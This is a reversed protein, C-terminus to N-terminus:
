PLLLDSYPEAMQLLIKRPGTYPRRGHAVLMNDILLIDGKHWSFEILNREVTQNIEEIDAGEIASGDGYYANNPWLVEDPENSKTMLAARTMEDMRSIHFGHAFNFWVAENTIPHRRVAPRKEWTRLDHEDIWQFERGAARSIKEVVTKDTTQYSKHWSRNYKYNRVYLVGKEEFKERIAPSIQKYLRRSDVIPTQGRDKPAVSCYFFLKMPWDNSYCLENHLRIQLESPYETSTYLKDSIKSRTAAGGMYDVVNDTLRTVFKQFDEPRDYQPNRFLIAGHENLDKKIEDRNDIAWLGLDVESYAPELVLPLRADNLYSRRVLSNSSMQQARGAATKLKGFKNFNKTENM